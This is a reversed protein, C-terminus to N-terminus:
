VEGRAQALKKDLLKSIKAADEVSVQKTILMSELLEMEEFIAKEKDIDQMDGINLRAFEDTFKARPGSAIAKKRAAMFKRIAFNPDVPDKKKGSGMTLRKKEGWVRM